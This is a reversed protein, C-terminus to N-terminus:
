SQYSTTQAEVKLASICTRLAEITHLVTRSCRETIDYNYEEQELRSSVYDKIISPSYFENNALSSCLLNNYVQTKKKNFQKKAVAMQNNVFALYKCLIGVQDILWPVSQSANYSDAAAELLEMIDEIKKIQLQAEM